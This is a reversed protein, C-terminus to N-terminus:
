YLELPQKSSKFGLSFIQEPRRIWASSLFFRTEMDFFGELTSGSLNDIPSPRIRVLDTLGTLNVLYLTKWGLDKLGMLSIVLGIMHVLYRTLDM